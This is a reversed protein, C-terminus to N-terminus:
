LRVRALNSHIDVFVRNSDGIDRLIMTSLYGIHDGHGNGTLQYSEHPGNSLLNWYNRLDVPDIAV